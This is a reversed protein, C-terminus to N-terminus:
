FHSWLQNAQACPQLSVNVAATSCILFHFCECTQFSKNNRLYISTLHFFRQLYMIDYRPKIAQQRGADMSNRVTYVCFILVIMSNSLVPHERKSLYCLELWLITCSSNRRTDSIDATQKGETKDLCKSRVYDGVEEIAEMYCICKTTKIWHM